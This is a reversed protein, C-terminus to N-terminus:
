NSNNRPLYQQKKINHYQNKFKIKWNNSLISTISTKTNAKCESKALDM